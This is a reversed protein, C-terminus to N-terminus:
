VHSQEVVQVRGSRVAYLLRDIAQKEEETTEDHLMASQLIQRDSATMKGTNSVEAFLESISDSLLPLPEM